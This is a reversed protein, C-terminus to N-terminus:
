VIKAMCCACANLTQLGGQLFEHICTNAAGVTVDFVVYAMVYVSLMTMLVINTYYYLMQFATLDGEIELWILMRDLKEFSTVLRDCSRGEGKEHRFILM